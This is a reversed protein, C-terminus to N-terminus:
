LYLPFIEIKWQMQLIVLKAFTHKTEPDKHTWDCQCDQVICNLKISIGIETIIM